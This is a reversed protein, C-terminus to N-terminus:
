GSKANGFFDVGTQVLWHAAFREFVPDSTASDAGALVSAEALAALEALGRLRKRLEPKTTRDPIGDLLEDAREEIQTAM